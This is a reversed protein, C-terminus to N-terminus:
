GRGEGVASKEERKGERGGDRGKERGQTKEGRGGSERSANRQKPPRNGWPGEGETTGCSIHRHECVQKSNLTMGFGKLFAMSYSWCAGVNTTRFICHIGRRGRWHGILYLSWPMRRSLFHDIVTVCSYLEGGENGGEEGEEWRGARRWRILNIGAGQGMPIDRPMRDREYQRVKQISLKYARERLTPHLEPSKIYRTTRLSPFHKLRQKGKLVKSKGLRTLLAILHQM